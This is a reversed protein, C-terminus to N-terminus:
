PSAGKKDQDLSLLDSGRIANEEVSRLTSHRKQCGASVNTSRFLSSDVIGVLGGDVECIHLYNNGCRPNQM